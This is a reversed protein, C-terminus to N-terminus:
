IASGHCKKFKKGSGCPCQDNRGVESRDKLTELLEWSIQRVSALEVGLVPGGQPAGGIFNWGISNQRQLCAYTSDLEPDVHAGGDQNAMTLVIDRRSMERQQDDVIVPRTWWREFPVRIPSRREPVMFKPVWWAGSASGAGTKVHLGTLGATPFLNKRHPVDGGDVFSLGKLGLQAFLSRSRATDHM